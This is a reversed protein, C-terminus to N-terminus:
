SVVELLYALYIWFFQAINYLKDDIDLIGM